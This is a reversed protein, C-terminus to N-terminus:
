YRPIALIYIDLAENDYKVCVAGKGGGQFLTSFFSSYTGPHKICKSWESRLKEENGLWIITLCLYNPLGVFLILFSFLFSKTKYFCAKIDQRM